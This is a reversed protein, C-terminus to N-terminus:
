EDELVEDSTVMTEFVGVLQFDEEEQYETLVRDRQIESSFLVYHDGHFRGFFGFAQKDRVAECPDILDLYYNGEEDEDESDHAFYKGEATYSLSEGDKAIAVVPYPCAEAFDDADICIIRVEEGDRTECRGDEMNFIDRLRSAKM